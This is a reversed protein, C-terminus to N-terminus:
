RASRDPSNLCSRARPSGACCEPFDGGPVRRVRGVLGLDALAPQFRQEVELRHDAIEGPEVDGIGRQEIFGGSGGFRHREGFAGALHLRLREEDVAVHMRLRQRHQAGAGLREAPRQDDAIRGGIEVLGIHEAAQQLIRPRGARQAIRARRDRRQLGLARNGHERGVQERQCQDGRGAFDAGVDRDSRRLAKAHRHAIASRM